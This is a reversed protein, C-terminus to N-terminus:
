RAALFRSLIEVAPEPERMMMERSPASQLVGIPLFLIAKSRISLGLPPGIFGFNV